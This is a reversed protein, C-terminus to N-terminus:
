EGGPKIMAIIAEITENLQEERGITAKGDGNQEGYSGFYAHNGGEICVEKMDKPTRHRHKELDSDSILEDNSGYITLVKLDRDSLDKASFSGLFIVGKYETERDSVYRSMTVGGLSHGALYYNKYPYTERILDARKEGFLPINYPMTVLYTDIGQAALKYTLPAYSEAEVKAGPYFIVFDDKGNGDFYYGLPAKYVKVKDTTTLYAMAEDSAKYYGSAYYVVFLASFLFLQTSFRIIESVITSDARSFDVKSGVVFLAMQGGFTLGFLLNGPFWTINRVVEGWNIDKFAIIVSFFALIYSITLLIDFATNVWSINKKKLCYIVKWIIKCIEAFTKVLLAALFLYSRFIDYLMLMGACFLAVCFCDLVIHFANTRELMYQKKQERTLVTKSM